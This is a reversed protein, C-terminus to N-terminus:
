PTPQQVAYWRCCDNYKAVFRINSGDADMVKINSTGRDASDAGLAAFLIQTGDPSWSPAGSDGGTELLRPESGDAGATYIHMLTLGSSTAGYYGSIPASSFVLRSGDPSWSADGALLDPKTVERRNTGGSTVTVVVSGTARGDTGWSVVHFALNKGDPSWRPHKAEAMPLMTRTAELEVVTGAALDRIAVVTGTPDAGAPGTTRIYALRTGDPSYAPDWEDHCAPPECVTSILRPTTGAADTEWLLERASADNRNFGAYAIRSGDPSWAPTEQIGSVNPLLEDGLRDPRLLELRTGVRPTFHEFLVRGAGSLPLPVPRPTPRATPDSSPPIVAATSPSATETSTPSSTPGDTGVWPGSFAGALSLGAIVIITIAAIAAAAPLVPRMHTDRWPRLRWAPRQRHRAIGTSVVDVVRDPIETPGESLWNDLIRSLERDDMM